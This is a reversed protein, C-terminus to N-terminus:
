KLTKKIEQELKDRRIPKELYSNIHGVFVKDLNDKTYGSLLIFKILPNIKKLKYFLERGNIKPMLMDSLVLDIEEYKNEYFALAEFGDSFSYVDYGIEKLLGELVLRVTDDDDVVLIKTKDVDFDFELQHNDEKCPLYITFTTGNIQNSNLSLVGHHKIVTGLTQTLGLGTNKLREKTTFFPDFVRKEIDYPIGKGNDIIDIKLYKGNIHENFNIVDKPCTNLYNIKINMILISDLKDFAEISNIILNMIAQVLLKINGNLRVKSPNLDINKIFQFSKSTILKLKIDLEDLLEELKFEEENFNDHQSFSLLNRILKSCNSSAQLANNLYFNNKINLEKTALEINGDISMLQNNLEHAIEGSMNGLAQLKEAQFSKRIMDEEKTIDYFKFEIISKNEYNGKIEIIHTNKNSDIITRKLYIENIKNCLLNNIENMIDNMLEYRHPYKTNFYLEAENNEFSFTNKSINYLITVGNKHYISELSNEINFLTFYVFDDEYIFSCEANNYSNVNLFTVRNIYNYKNQLAQIFDANKKFKFGFDDLYNQNNLELIVIDNNFKLKGTIVNPM